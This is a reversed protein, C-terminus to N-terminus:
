LVINKIIRGPNGVVVVEDPINNNVITGAGIISWKGIQIGPLIVAGAGIHTGEGIKVNGCLTANPSIHVFNEIFCDHDISAATNIICHKGIKSDTQITSNQLIVTGEDIFALSSIVASPHFVKGFKHKIKNGIDQRFKNNGVSIILSENPFINLNYSSVKKERFHTKSDDDDFYHLVEENLDNLADSIVKAHGSAGYLIM